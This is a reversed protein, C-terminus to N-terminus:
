KVSPTASPGAPAPAATGTSSERPKIRAGDRLTDPPHVVVRDGPQLGDLVQAELGAIQGVAVTRERARGDAAVYVVWGTGRRVLCNTPVKVLGSQEWVVIHVDARFGDGLGLAVARAPDDLSTVVQVRQEPVGLASLATFASPDVRTVRGSLPAGGWQEITTHAGTDIRVADRSLVPVVVELHSPDGIELLPEGVGVSGESDRYRKLVVGDAPARITVRRGGGPVSATSLSAQARARAADREARAVTADAAQLRERPAPPVAQPPLPGAPRPGVGILDLLGSVTGQV